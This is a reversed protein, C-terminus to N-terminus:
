RHSNTPVTEKQKEFNGYIGGKKRYEKTREFIYPDLIAVSPHSRGKKFKERTPDLEIRVNVYNCKRRDAKIYYFKDPDLKLESQPDFFKQFEHYQKRIFTIGNRFFWYEIEGRSFSEDSNIIENNRIEYIDKELRIDYISLDTCLWSVNGDKFKAIIHDLMPKPPKFDYVVEEAKLWQCEWSIWYYCNTRYRANPHLRYPILNDSIVFEDLKDAYSISGIM